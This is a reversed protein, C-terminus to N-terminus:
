NQFKKLALAKRGPEFVAEVFKNSDPINLSDIGQGVRLINLAPVKV